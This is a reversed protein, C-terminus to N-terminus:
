RSTVGRLRAAVVAAVESVYPEEDMMRFHGAGVTHVDLSEVHPGWGCSPSKLPDNRLREGSVFRSNRPLASVRSRRVQVNTLSM